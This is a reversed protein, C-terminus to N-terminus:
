VIQSSILPTIYNILLVGFQEETRDWAAYADPLLSYKTYSKNLEPSFIINNDKDCVKWTCLATVSGNSLAVEEINTYELWLDGDKFNHLNSELKIKM